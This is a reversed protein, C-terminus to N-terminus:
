FFYFSPFMHVFNFADETLHRDIGKLSVGDVDWDTWCKYLKDSWWYGRNCSSWCRPWCDTSPWSLTSQYMYTLWYQALQSTSQTDVSYRDLTSHSTLPNNILPLDITSFRYWSVSLQRVCSGFSTLFFTGLVCAIVGMECMRLHTNCCNSSDNLTMQATGCIIKHYDGWTPLKCYNKCNVPRIYM